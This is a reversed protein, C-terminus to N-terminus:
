AESQCCPARIVKGVQASNGQTKSRVNHLVIGVSIVISDVDATEFSCSGTSLLLQALLVKVSTPRNKM